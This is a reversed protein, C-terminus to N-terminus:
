LYQGTSTLAEARSTITSLDGRQELLQALTMAQDVPRGLWTSAEDPEFTRFEVAALCRGPRVLAPHLRTVEENTTLLVLINMGQGLIGDALNLLRGLAAGADRRATARLYEDCDEAIILRWIAEPEGADTLTPGANAVAATTVVQTMYSSEGFFKEPDSIYQPQCWPSWQAILARLATTKGTGPPGHWLILKGRGTPVQLQFVEDLLRRSRSPYNSCVDTWAPVVLRRDSSIAGVDCNHHWVRVTATGTPPSPLRSQLEAAVLEAGEHNGATVRVTTSRAAAEIFVTGTDLRALVTVGNDTTVCREISARDPLLQAPAYAAGLICFRVYPQSGDLQHELQAFEAIDIANTMRDVIVQGAIARAPGNM